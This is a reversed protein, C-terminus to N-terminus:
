ESVWNWGVVSVGSGKRFLEDAWNSQGTVVVCNCGLSRRM